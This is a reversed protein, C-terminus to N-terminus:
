RTRPFPPGRLIGKRAFDRESFIGVLRDNSLVLLAGIDYKALM